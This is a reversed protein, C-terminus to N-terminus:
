RKRKYADNLWETLERETKSQIEARQYADQSTSAESDNTRLTNNYHNSLGNSINETRLEGQTSIKKGSNSSSNNSYQSTMPAIHDANVTVLNERLQPQPENLPGQLKLSNATELNKSNKQNDHIGNQHQINYFPTQIQLRGNSIPIQESSDHLQINQYSLNQSQPLLMNRNDGLVLEISGSSCKGFDKSVNQTSPGGDNMSNYQFNIHPQAQINTQQIIVNPTTFDRSTSPSAM